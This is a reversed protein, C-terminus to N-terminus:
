PKARKTASADCWVSSSLRHFWGTIYGFRIRKGCHRCVDVIRM